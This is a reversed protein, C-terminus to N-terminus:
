NGNRMVEPYEEVIEWLEKRAKYYDEISYFMFTYLPCWEAFEKLLKLNM